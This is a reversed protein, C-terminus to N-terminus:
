LQLRRRIFIISAGFATVLGLTAPEPIAEVVLDKVQVQDGTGWNSYYTQIDTISTVSALNVSNTYVTGVPWQWDSGYTRIENAGFDIEMTVPGAGTGALGNVVRGQAGSNLGGLASGTKTVARIKNSNDGLELSIWSNAAGDNAWLRFGFKSNATDTTSLDLAGVDFTLKVIPTAAVDISSSLDIKAGFASATTPSFNFMEDDDVQAFQQNNTNYHGGLNLGNNSNQYTGNGNMDWHDIVAGSATIAALAIVVLTGVTKKM